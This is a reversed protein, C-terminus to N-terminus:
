SKKPAIINIFAVDAKHVTVPETEYSADKVTLFTFTDASDNGLYIRADMFTLQEDKQSLIAFTHPDKFQISKWKYIDSMRTLSVVTSSRGNFKGAIYIYYKGIPILKTLEYVTGDKMRVEGVPDDPLKIDLVTDDEAEAESAAAEAGAAAEAQASEDTQTAEDGSNVPADEKGACAALSLALVLILIFSIKRM